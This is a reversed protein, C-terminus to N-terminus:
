LGIEQLRKHIKPKEDDPLSDWYEMLINFGLEWNCDPNHESMAQGEEYELYELENKDFGKDLLFEKAEELFNFKHVTCGDSRLLYERGNITIGKIPRCVIIM